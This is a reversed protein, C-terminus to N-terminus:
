LWTAKRGRMTMENIMQEKEAYYKLTAKREKFTYNPNSKTFNPKFHYPHPCCPLDSVILDNRRHINKQENDWSICIKTERGDARDIFYVTGECEYKTGTIPNESSAKRKKGILRVRQNKRSPPKGLVAFNRILRVLSIFM